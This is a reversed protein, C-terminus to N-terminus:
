FVVSGKELRSRLDEQQSWPVSTILSSPILEYHVQQEIAVTGRAKRKLRAQMLGSGHHSLPYPLTGLLEASSGGSCHCSHHCCSTNCPWTHECWGQASLAGVSVLVGWWLQSWM